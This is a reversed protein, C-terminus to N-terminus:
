KKKSIQRIERFDDKVGKLIEIIHNKMDNKTTFEKYKFNKLQISEKNLKSIIHIIEKDKNTIKDKKSYYGIFSHVIKDLLLYLKNSLIRYKIKNKELDVKISKLYNKTKSNINKLDNIVVKIVYDATNKNVKTTQIKRLIYIIDYLDKLSTNIIKNDKMKYKNQIIKLKNRFITVENEILKAQEINRNSNEISPNKELNISSKEIAITNNISLILVIIINIKQLIKM